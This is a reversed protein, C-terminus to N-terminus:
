DFIRFAFRITRGSHIHRLIDTEDRLALERLGYCYDALLNRERRDATSDTKMGTLVVAKLNPYAVFWNGNAGELTKSSLM